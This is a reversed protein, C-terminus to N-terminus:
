KAYAGQIKSLSANQYKRWRLFESNIELSKEQGSKSLFKRFYPRCGKKIQVGPVNKRIKAYYKGSRLRVQNSRRPSYLDFFSWPNLTTLFLNRWVASYNKLTPDPLCQTRFRCLIFSTLNLLEDDLIM